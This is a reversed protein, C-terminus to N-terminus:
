ILVPARQAAREPKAKSPHRIRRIYFQPKKLVVLLSSPLGRSTKEFAGISCLFRLLGGKRLRSPIKSRDAKDQSARQARDQHCRKM